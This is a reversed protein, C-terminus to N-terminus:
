GNIDRTKKSGCFEIVKITTDNIVTCGYIGQLRGRVKQRM